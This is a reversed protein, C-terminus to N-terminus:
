TSGLYTAIFPFKIRRPRQCTHSAGGGIMRLLTGDFFEWCVCYRVEQILLRLLLSLGSEKEIGSFHGLSQRVSQGLCPADNRFDM